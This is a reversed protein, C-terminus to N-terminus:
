ANKKRRRPKLGLAAGIMEPTIKYITKIEDNNLPKTQKELKEIIKLEKENL